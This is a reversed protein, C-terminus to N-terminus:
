SIGENQKQRMCIVCQAYGKVMFGNRWFDKPTNEKEELVICSRVHECLNKPFEFNLVFVSIM